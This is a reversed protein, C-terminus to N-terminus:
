VRFQEVLRNLDGALRSLEEATRNAEGAGSTTSQADGAVGTITETIAAAGAAAGAVNRGIESTTATQEEVASAITDSYTNIREIVDAIEGIASVAAGTDTQIAQIRSSIEETAKATEQALDKVESAVVAFGKGAEGARAAEITANLALLNTQEAISTIVKVIDGVESSSVGLKAMTTNAAKAVQVADRAIGAADTASGAIERISATMEEAAVAVTDVNTSVEVAAASVQEARSSTHGANSAMQASIAAMQEATGALSQSSGSIQAITARLTQTARDLEAGMLGVEDRSDVDATRTLDGDALARIVQSLRRVRTVLGRAVLVGFIAALGLGVVLVSITVTRATAYRSRAHAADASAQASEGAILDTLYATATAAAPALVNDGIQEVDPAALRRSAPVFQKDRVTRYEQWAAVLRDLHRPNVTVKRYAAVDRDFAADIKKIEQEYRTKASPSSTLGHNFVATRTASIDVAIQDLQQTPVVSGTYLGDATRSLGAMQVIAFAGVGAGVLSLVTVILLIKTYMPLNRIWRTAGGAKFAHSTM